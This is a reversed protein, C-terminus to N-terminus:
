AKELYRGVGMDAFGGRIPGDPAFRLHGVFGPVKTIKVGDPRIVTNGVLKRKDKGSLAIWVPAPADKKKAKPPKPPAKPPPPGKLLRATKRKNHAYDRKQSMSAAKQSEKELRVFEDVGPLFADFWQKNTFWRVHKDPGCKWLRGDDIMRDMYKRVTDWKHEPTALRMEQTLIGNKGAQECARYIADLGMPRKRMYGQRLHTTLERSACDRLLWIILEQGTTHAGIVCM